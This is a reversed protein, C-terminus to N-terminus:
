EPRGGLKSYNRLVKLALHRLQTLEADTFGDVFPIQQELAPKWIAEIRERGSATLRAHISRRDNPDPVREVLGDRELGDILGTVNRPSVRQMEALRGLPVGHEGAKRLMFLVQLRGQSLGHDDAWREMALHMARAASQLAALTELAAKNKMAPLFERTGRDFLCGGEDLELRDGLGAFPKLNEQNLTEPKM